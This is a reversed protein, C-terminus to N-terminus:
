PLDSYRCTMKCTPCLVQPAREPNARDSEPYDSFVSPNTSRYILDLGGCNPCPDPGERDDVEM